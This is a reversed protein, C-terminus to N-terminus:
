AFRNIESFTNRYMRELLAGGLGCLAWRGLLKGLTIMINLTKTFNFLNICGFVLQYFTPPPCGFLHISVLCIGVNLRNGTAFTTM